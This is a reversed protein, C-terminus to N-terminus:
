TAAAALIFRTKKRSVSRDFKRSDRRRQQREHQERKIDTTQETKPRGNNFNGRIIQQFQRTARGDTLSNNLEVGVSKKVLQFNSPVKVIFFTITTQKNWRIRKAIFSTFHTDSNNRNFYCTQEERDDVLTRFKGPGLENVDRTDLTLYKKEKSNSIQFYPRNLWVQQNPLYSNKQRSAFLLLTKLIMSSHISGSFFNFIYTQSMIMGLKTQSSLNYSGYKRSVTLFISFDASKDALGSVDDMVILRTVALQEGLENQIYKSKSQMFNGVLYNFDDLDQPYSFHM